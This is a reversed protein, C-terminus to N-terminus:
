SRQRAPWRAGVLMALGVLGAALIPTMPTDLTMRALPAALCLGILGMFRARHDHPPALWGLRRFVETVLAIGGMGGAVAGAFLGRPGFPNGAVSGLVAGAATFIWGGLVIGIPRMCWSYGEGPSQSM